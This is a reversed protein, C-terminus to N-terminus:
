LKIEVSVSYFETNSSTDESMWNWVELRELGVKAQPSFQKFVGLRLIPGLATVDTTKGANSSDPVDKIMHIGIGPSMHASYMENGFINLKIQGGFSTIRNVIKVGSKEKDNQLFIYAGYMASHSAEKNYQFGVNLAGSAFGLSPVVEAEGGYSAPARSSSEVVAPAPAGATKEKKKAQVSVFGLTLLISLAFSVPSFNFKTKM